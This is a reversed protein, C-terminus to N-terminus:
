PSDPAKNSEPPTQDDAPRAEKALIKQALSLALRQAEDADGIYCSILLCLSGKQVM